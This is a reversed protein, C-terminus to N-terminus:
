NGKEKLNHKPKEKLESKYQKYEDFLYHKVMSELEVFLANLKQNSKIHSLVKYANTKDEKTLGDLLSLRTQNQSDKAHTFLTKLFTDKLSNDINGKISLERDTRGYFDVIFSNLSSGSYYLSDRISKDNNEIQMDYQFDKFDNSRLHCHFKKNFIPYFFGITMLETNLVEM